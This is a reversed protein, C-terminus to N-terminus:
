VECSLRPNTKSVKVFKTCEMPDCGRPHGTILIYNCLIPSIASPSVGFVCKRSVKCTCRVPEGDGEPIKVAKVPMARDKVAVRRVKRKFNKPVLGKDKLRELRKYAGAKSICLEDCIDDMHVHGLYMELLRQNTVDLKAVDFIKKDDCKM